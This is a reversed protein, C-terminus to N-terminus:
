SMPYRDTDPKLVYGLNLEFALSKFIKLKETKEEKAAQKAAQQSAASAAAYASSCDAGNL